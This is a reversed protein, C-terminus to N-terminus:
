IPAKAATPLTTLLHHTLLCWATRQTAPNPTHVNVDILMTRGTVPRAAIRVGPPLRDPQRRSLLAAACHPPVLLGLYGASQRAHAERCFAEASSWPLRYDPDGFRHPQGAYHVILGGHRIAEAEAVLADYMTRFRAIPHFHGECSPTTAVGAAWLRLCLPRLLTDVQALEGPGAVRATCTRVRHHYYWDHPGRFWRSFAFCATDPMSASLGTVDNLPAVM